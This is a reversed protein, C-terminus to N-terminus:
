LDMDALAIESRQQSAPSLVLESASCISSWRREASPIKSLPITQGNKMKLGLSHSSLASQTAPHQSFIAKIQKLGDAPKYWDEQARTISLLLTNDETVVRWQSNLKTSPVVLPFSRLIDILGGYLQTYEPHVLVLGLKSDSNPKFVLEKIDRPLGPVSTIQQVFPKDLTVTDKRETQSLGELDRSSEVVNLLVHSDLSATKQQVWIFTHADM